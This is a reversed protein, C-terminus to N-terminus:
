KGQIHRVLILREDQTLSLVGRLNLLRSSIIIAIVMDVNDMKFPAVMFM